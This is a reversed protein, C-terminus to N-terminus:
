GLCSELPRPLRYRAVATVDRPLDAVVPDLEWSGAFGLERAALHLHAMGIGCDVLHYDKDEKLQSGQKLVLVSEPELVFRWPQKNAWSPARRIAELWRAPCPREALGAPLPAGLREWFFLQELPKRRSSRVVSRIVRGLVGKAGREEPHGVPSLAVVREGADLEFAASVRAERFFGGIWCTGLGLRTAALLVQEFRYGADLLHHAGEEATLVLYHPARIVKGYDGLLGTMGRQVAAREDLHTRVRISTLPEAQEGAAVLQGLLDSSVAQDRYSRVSVRRLITEIESM